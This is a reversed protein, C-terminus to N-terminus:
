FVLSLRFNDFLDDFSTADKDLSGTGDKVATRLLTILKNFEPNIAISSNAYEMIEKYHATM